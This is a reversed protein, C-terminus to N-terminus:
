PLDSHERLSLFGLGGGRRRRYCSWGFAYAAIAAYWGDDTGFQGNASCEDRCAVNRDVALDVAVDTRSQQDDTFLGDDSTVHEGFFGDDAAPYLPADARALHLKAGGAVDFAVNQM